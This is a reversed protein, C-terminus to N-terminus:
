TAFTYIVSTGIAAELCVVLSAAYPAHIACTRMARSGSSRQGCEM